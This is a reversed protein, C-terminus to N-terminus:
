GAVSFLFCGEGYFNLRGRQRDEVEVVASNKGLPLLAIVAYNLHKVGGGTAYIIPQNAAIVLREQCDVVVM